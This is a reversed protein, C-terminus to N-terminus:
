NQPINAKERVSKWTAVEKDLFSGFEAPPMYHSVAGVKILQERMEPRALIDKLAKSTKDISRRPRGLRISWAM